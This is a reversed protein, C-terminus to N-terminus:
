KYFKVSSYHSKQKEEPPLEMYSSGYFKKLIADANNPGWFQTDEFKYKKLPLFEALELKQRSTYANSLVYRDVTDLTETKTANNWFREDILDLFELRREFENDDMLGLDKRRKVYKIFQMESFECLDSVKIKRLRYLDVFLGKHAYYNDQLYYESEVESKLDKVHAWAHFYNPETKEDELFMDEPLEARLYEMAEDYVDDFVALDFDDDWPIFGKHRVAGLVTGYFMTYPIKHADLISAITKGMELLRAQVKKIDYRRRRKRENHVSAVPNQNIRRKKTDSNNKKSEGNKKADPM